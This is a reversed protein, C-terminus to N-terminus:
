WAGRCKLGLVLVLLLLFPSWPFGFRAPRGGGAQLCGAQAGAAEPGSFKVEGTPEVAGDCCSRVAKKLKGM